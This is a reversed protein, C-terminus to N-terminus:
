NPAAPRTLEDYLRAPAVGSDLLGQARGLEEAVLAEFVAPSQAGLILRGNIFIAPTSDIGLAAALDQDQQLRPQHLGQDLASRLRAVDLGLQQAWVELNARNLQTRNQFLRDHYDWFEGQAHAEIAAEAAPFATPHNPLPLHKFV